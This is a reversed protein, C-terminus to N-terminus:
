AMIRKAAGLVEGTTLLSFGYKNRIKDAAEQLRKQKDDEEPVFLDPEWGLPRLDNLTLTISRVRLRRGAIKVYIRKAAEGIEKDTIYLRKGKEEGNARVGDAYIVLLQIAMVGLKSGRMELGATESLFVLGGRIIDFDIIDEGFDLQKEISRSNLDGANVPSTDIGKATDRLLMGRKGFLSLAESNSLAALEGIERIGTVAATRLLGPGMGPLLRIDQHALFAAETGGQIRILGIPRITRTAVKCVLKNEAVAAAPRIGITELMERLIHSSCDAPPGFLGSTGTLDLYLNGCQDNEFAPAYQAAIKELETNMTGYSPIDPHLVTLNKVMREAAALAM